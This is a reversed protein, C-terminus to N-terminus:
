KNKVVSSLVGNVFSPDPPLSYKKSLEVAENIAVESPTEAFLIEYVALRLVTKSVSSIRKLSWGTLYKEITEDIVCLNENVGNILEATFPNDDYDWLSTEKEEMTKSDANFLGEFLVLFAQERQETRTM